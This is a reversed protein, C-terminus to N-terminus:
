LLKIQEYRLLEVREDGLWFVQDSKLSIAALRDKQKRKDHQPADTALPVNSREGRRVM